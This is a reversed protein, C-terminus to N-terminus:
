RVAGKERLEEAYTVAHYGKRYAPILDSERVATDGGVENRLNTLWGIYFRQKEQEQKTKLHPIEQKVTEILFDITVTM